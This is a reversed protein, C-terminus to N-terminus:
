NVDLTNCSGTPTELETEVQSTSSSQAQKRARRRPGARRLSVRFTLCELQPDLVSMFLVTSRVADAAQSPSAGLTVATYTSAAAMAAVWDEPIAVPVMPFRGGSGPTDMSIASALPAAPLSASTLSM